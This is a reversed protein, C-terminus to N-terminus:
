QAERALRKLIRIESASFDVLHTGMDVALCAPCSEPSIVPNATHDCVHDIEPQEENFVGGLKVIGEAVIQKFDDGNPILNYLWCLEELDFGYWAQDDVIQGDRM